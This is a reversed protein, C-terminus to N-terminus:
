NLTWNRNPRLYFIGFVAAALGALAWASPEPVVFVMFGPSTGMGTDKFVSLDTGDLNYSLIEGDNSDLDVGSVYLKGDPGIALNSAQFNVSSYDVIEHASGDSLSLQYIGGSGSADLVYVNGNNGAVVDRAANFQSPQSNVQAFNGGRLSIVNGANEDAIYLTGSAAFNLGAPFNLNPSSLPPGNEVGAHNYVLINGSADGVYLNGGLFALGQPNNLSNDTAHSVFTGEPTGSAGNIGFVAIGAGEGGSLSDSGVYLNNAPDVALGIPDEVSAFSPNLLAGTQGDYLGVTDTNFFSVFLDDARALLPTSIACFFLVSAAQFRMSLRETIKEFITAPNHACKISTLFLTASACHPSCGMHTPPEFIRAPRPIYLWVRWNRQKLAYGL